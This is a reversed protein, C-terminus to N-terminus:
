RAIPVSAIRLEHYILINDTRNARFLSYEMQCCVFM